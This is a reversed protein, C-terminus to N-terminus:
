IMLQHHWIAQRRVMVEGHHHHLATSVVEQVGNNHIYVGEKSCLPLDEGELDVEIISILHFVSCISNSSCFRFLVMSCTSNIAVEEVLTRRSNITAVEGVM